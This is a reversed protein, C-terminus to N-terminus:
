YNTVSELLLTVRKKYYKKQAKTFSQMPQYEKVAHRINDLSLMMHKMNDDISPAVNMSVSTSLLSQQQEQQQQKPQQQKPQQQKPQQQKPQQSHSPSLLTSSSSSESSPNPNPVHNTGGSENQSSTPHNEHHTQSKIGNNTQYQPINNADVVVCPVIIISNDQMARTSYSPRVFTAVCELTRHNNNNITTATPPIVERIFSTSESSTEDNNPINPPTNNINLGQHDHIKKENQPQNSEVNDRNNHNPRSYEHHNVVPDDNNNPNPNRQPVRGGMTDKYHVDSENM